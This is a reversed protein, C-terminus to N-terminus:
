AQAIQTGEFAFLFPCTFADQGDPGACDLTVQQRPREDIDRRGARYM